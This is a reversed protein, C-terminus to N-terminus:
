VNEQLLKLTTQMRDPLYPFFGRFVYSRMTTQIFSLTYIQWPWSGQNCIIIKFGGFDNNLSTMHNPGYIIAKPSSSNNRVIKEKWDKFSWYNEELELVKTPSILIIKYFMSINLM